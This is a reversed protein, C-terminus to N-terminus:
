SMHSKAELNLYFNWPTDFGLAEHPRYLNYKEIFRFLETRIETLDASGHYTSYFEYKITGHRREVNGNFKPSKPPLVYLQINKQECALEFDGKFESGGDVQISKLPFPFQQQIYDLFNSAVLSTARSYAQSVTFKTIPCTADFQKVYKGPEVEVVAHDIQVLEGPVKSKMGYKWRKTYRNFKRPKKKKLRGFYFYIPKVKGQKLLKTIIRGITSVSTTIGYDRKIIAFVKNKGWVPNERRLKLVLMELQSNYKKKPINLPAKSKNELGILGSKGYSRKWRYFTSKPICLAKFIVKKDCQNKLEEYLKLKSYREYVEQSYEKEDIGNSILNLKKYLYKIQM